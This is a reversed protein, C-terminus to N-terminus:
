PQDITKKRQSDLYKKIDAHKYVVLAGDKSYAPGEGNIRRKRLTNINMPYLKCVEETTLYDKRRLLELEVVEAPMATSPMKSMISSMVKELQEDSTVIVVQSM